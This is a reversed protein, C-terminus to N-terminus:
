VSKDVWDGIGAIRRGTLRRGTEHVCSLRAIQRLVECAM